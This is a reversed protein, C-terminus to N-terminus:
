WASSRDVVMDMFRETDGIEGVEEKIWLRMRRGDDSTFTMADSFVYDFQAVAEPSFMKVWERGEAQMGIFCPQDKMTALFGRLGADDTVGFGKGCNVAIGYEIGMHRSNDLAQELTWGGKLHVHYDVM